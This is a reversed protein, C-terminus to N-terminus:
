KKSKIKVIPKLSTPPIFPRQSLYAIAAPFAVYKGVTIVVAAVFTVIAVVATALVVATMAVTVIALAVM